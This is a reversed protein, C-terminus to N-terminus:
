IQMRMDIQMEMKMNLKMKNIIKIENQNLNNVSHPLHLRLLSKFARRSPVSAASSLPVVTM